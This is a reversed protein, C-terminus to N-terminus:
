FKVHLLFNCHIVPLICSRPRGRPGQLLDPTNKGELVTSLFLGERNTKLFGGGLVKESILGSNCDGRRKRMLSYQGHTACM